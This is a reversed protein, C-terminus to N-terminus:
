FDLANTDRNAFLTLRDFLATMQRGYQSYLELAIEAEDAGFQYATSEAEVSFSVVTVTGSTRAANYSGPVINVTHTQQGMGSDLPMDFSIAGKKIAHHYFLTWVSFQLDDLILTVNFTQAGRDWDLGYRPAGGAVETRNVGGPGGFSYGSVVPALGKPITPM